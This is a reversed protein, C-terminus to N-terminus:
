SFDYFNENGVVLVEFVQRAVINEFVTISEAIRLQIFKPIKISSGFCKNWLSTVLLVVSIESFKLLYDLFKGMLVM